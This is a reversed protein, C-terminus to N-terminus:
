PFIQLLWVTKSPFSPQFPLHSYLNIIKRPFDKQSWYRTSIHGGDVIGTQGARSPGTTEADRWGASQAAAPIRLRPRCAPCPLRSECAVLRRPPTQLPTKGAPAERPLTLTRGTATQLRAAQPSRCFDASAARSSSSIDKKSSKELSTNNKLTLSLSWTIKWVGHHHRHSTWLNCIFPQQSAADNNISCYSINTFM